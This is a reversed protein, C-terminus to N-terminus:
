ELMLIMEHFKPLQREINKRTISLQNYLQIIPLPRSAEENRLKRRFVSRQCDRCSRTDGVPEDDFMDLKLLPFSLTDNDYSSTM